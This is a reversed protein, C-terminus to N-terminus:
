EKKRNEFMRALSAAMDMCVQNGCCRISTNPTAAEQSADNSCDPNICSPKQFWSLPQFEVTIEPM